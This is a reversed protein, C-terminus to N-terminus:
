MGPPKMQDFPIDKVHTAVMWSHGDPDIVVSTRDGWFMDTPEQVIKGGNSGARSTVDDVKEVYIYLTVPSPGQPAFSGREHNEPGLMVVSENHILEAHMIKGDPGPMSNRLKFGFSGTYFDIASQVDRVTLYPSVWNAGAALAKSRKPAQAAAPRSQQMPKKKAPKAKVVMRRSPKAKAKAPAKKPKAAPKAKTKMKKKAM